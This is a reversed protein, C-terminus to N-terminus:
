AGAGAPKAAPEIHSTFIKELEPLVVFEGDHRGIGKVYEAPWRSGVDPPPDVAEADISAVDLVKDAMLGVTLHEDGADLDLVVIRADPGPPRPTMGFAVRFDVLPAVSGRVNILGAAFAPATPVRTVGAPDIIERVRTAPLAFMQGGLRMTVWRTEEAAEEGPGTM